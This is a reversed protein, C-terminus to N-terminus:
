SYFNMAGSLTDGFLIIPSTTALGKDAMYNGLEEGVTAEGEIFTIAFMTPYGNGDVFASSPYEKGPQLFM